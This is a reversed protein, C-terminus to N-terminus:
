PLPRNWIQLGAGPPLTLDDLAGELGGRSGRQVRELGGKSVGPGGTDLEGTQGMDRQAVRRRACM